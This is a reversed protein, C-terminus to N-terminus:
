QSNFFYHFPDRRWRCLGGSISCRLELNGGPPLRLLLKVARGRRGLTLLYEGPPLFAFWVEGRCMLTRARCTYPRCSQLVVRDMPLFDLIEVRIGCLVWDPRFCLCSEAEQEAKLCFPRGM